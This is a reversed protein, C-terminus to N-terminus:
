LITNKLFDLAHSSFDFFKTKSAEGIKMGVFSETGSLYAPLRNKHPTKFPCGRKQQAEDLYSNAM